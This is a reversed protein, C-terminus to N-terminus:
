VYVAEIELMPVAVVPAEKGYKQCLFLPAPPVPDVVLSRVELVIFIKTFPDLAIAVEGEIENAAPVLDIRTQASLVLEALVPDIVSDSSFSLQPGHVSRVTVEAGAVGVTFRTALGVNTEVAPM